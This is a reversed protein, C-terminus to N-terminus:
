CGQVFFNLKERPTLDPVLRFEAKIRHYYSQVSAGSFQRITGEHLRTMALEAETFLEPTLLSQIWTLIGLWDFGLFEGNAYTDDYTRKLSGHLAASFHPVVHSFSDVDDRGFQVSLV